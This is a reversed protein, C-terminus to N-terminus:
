CLNGDKGNYASNFHPNSPMFDIDREDLEGAMNNMIRMNLAEASNYGMMKMRSNMAAVEIITALNRGPRVPITITAIEVGLLEEFHDDLGLRDYHKNQDWAELRAILLVSETLKVSGMGFLRRVDLIGVGRLEMFHRITAPATGVLRRDSLRKIEVADDAILRHGRKILEVATESKGIGSEGMILVGWGYVEMLVGHVTTRAALESSLYEFMKATVNSTSDYSRLLPINQERVSRLLEEPPEVGRAIIVAPPRHEMVRAIKDYREEKSVGNLYSMETRGMLLIRGNDFFNLYGALALGPRNLDARTIILSEYNEPLYLTEFKFNEVIKKLLISYEM